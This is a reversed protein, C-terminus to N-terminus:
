VLRRKPFTVKGTKHNFNFGSAGLRKRNRHASALIKPINGRGRGLQASKFGKAHAQKVLEATLARAHGKGRFKEITFIYFGKLIGEKRDKNVAWWCALEKGEIGMFCDYSHAKLHKLIKERPWDKPDITELHSLISKFLISNTRLESLWKFEM